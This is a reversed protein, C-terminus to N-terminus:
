VVSKRDARDQVGGSHCHVRHRPLLIRPGREGPDPQAFHVGGEHVAGVHDGGSAVHVANVNRFRRGCDVVIRDRDEGVRGFRFEGLRPRSEHGGRVVRFHQVIGAEEEGLGAPAGSVPRTGRSSSTGASSPKPKRISGSNPRSARVGHDVSPAWSNEVPTRSASRSERAVALAAVTTERTSPTGNAQSNARVSNGPRLRTRARTVTGSTSGGTTPPT